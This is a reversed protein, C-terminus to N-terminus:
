WQTRRHGDVWADRIILDAGREAVMLITLMPNTSPLTPLVSADCVRLGSTGLVHLDKQDVVVNGSPVGPKTPTGMRCTGAPHYVTHHVKRAYSSIDEDTVCDPGPAVERVLHKKFPEQAAISRAIKIGEVVIREDYRDPDEFYRFNILPKTSPSASALSLKGRGRSRMINPTMCIAHEPSDYGVRATNETFPIQYIHFMLDPGPHPHPEADPPLARVFLGADSSMVTERPTERTEWIIISEPHDQLNEGVASSNVRCPIGLSELERRPGIGSLLLLRPSDFAGACLIVERRAHFSMPGSVREANVGVVRTPDSESFRLSSVWTDFYMHLNHRENRSGPLFPHIYAVSASNRSCNHPNYAINFFGAARQFGGRFAIQANIDEIIPAGTVASSAALWDRVVHNRDHEAIPQHNTKLRLSYPLLSSADWDPCGYYDRWADLDASFPLFSILTNHSSCGGLV